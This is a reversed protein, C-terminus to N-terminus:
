AMFQSLPGAQMEKEDLEPDLRGFTQQRQGVCNLFTAYLAGVTHHGPKGYGPFDMYRGGLNLKGKLNGVIALPWEYATSHHTDPADSMYVIVTNDLMTGDGEPIADLRKAM